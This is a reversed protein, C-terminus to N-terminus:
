PMGGIKMIERVEIAGWRAHPCRAALATAADRDKAAVVFYGGVVEKAEAFPGDTIELRGARTALRAPKPDSPLSASEVYADEAKLANDFAIMERYKSGDPDSLDPSAYLILMYQRGDGPGVVDRDPAAHVQLLVSSSRLAPCRAALAIAEERTAADIAFYGAVIEKAEAFPGDTVSLRGGRASVRVGEADGHLPAGGRAKGARGIEGAYRAMEGMEVAEGPPVDRRNVILLMWDM